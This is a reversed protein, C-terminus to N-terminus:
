IKVPVNQGLCKSTTGLTFILCVHNANSEPNVNPNPNVKNTTEPPRHATLLPHARRLPLRGAGESRDTWVSDLPGM